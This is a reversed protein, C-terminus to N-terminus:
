QICITREFLLDLSDLLYWLMYWELIDLHLNGQLIQYSIALLELHQFFLFIYKQIDLSDFSTNIYYQIEEEPLIM